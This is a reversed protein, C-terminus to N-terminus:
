VQVWNKVILLNKGTVAVLMKDEAFELCSTIGVYEIVISNKSLDEPEITWKKEKTSPVLKCRMLWASSGSSGITEFESYTSACPVENENEDDDASIGASILLGTEELDLACSEVSAIGIDPHLQEVRCIRIKERFNTDITYFNYYTSLLVLDRGVFLCNNFRDEQGWEDECSKQWISKAVWRSAANLSFKTLKWPNAHLNDTFSAVMFWDNAKNEAMDIISDLDLSGNSGESGCDEQEQKSDREEVLMARTFEERPMTLRAVKAYPPKTEFLKLAAKSPDDDLSIHLFRDLKKILHM